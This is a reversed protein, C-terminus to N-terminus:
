HVFLALAKMIESCTEYTQKSITINAQILLKAQLDKVQNEVDTIQTHLANNQTQAAQAAIIQQKLHTELAILEQGTWEEMVGDKQTWLLTKTRFRQRSGAGLAPNSIQVTPLNAEAEMPWNNSDWANDLIHQRFGKEVAFPCGKPQLITGNDNWGNPVGSMIPAGKKYTVWVQSFELTNAWETDSKTIKQAAWPDMVTLTGPPEDCAYFAIVHSWNLAPNAYPDPETGIVPHNKHIQDRIDTVLQNGNGNMPTLIVGHSNCFDVYKVAATGGVYAPYYAADKLQAGTYNGGVLYRMCSALSTAVCDYLRNAEGTDALQNEFPFNNLHTM